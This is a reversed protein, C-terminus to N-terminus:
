PGIPRMPQPLRRVRSCSASGAPEGGRACRVGLMVIEVWRVPPGGSCIMKEPEAAFGM